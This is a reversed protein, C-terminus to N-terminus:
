HIGSGGGRHIRQHSANTYYAALAKSYYNRQRATDDNGTGTIHTQFRQDLLECLQILEHPRSVEVM